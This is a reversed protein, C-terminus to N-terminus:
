HHLLKLAKQYEQDAIKQLKENGLFRQFIGPDQPNSRLQNMPISYQIQMSEFPESRCVIEGNKDVITAYGPCVKQNEEPWVIDSTIFWCESDYARTIFHSKRNLFNLMRANLEVRNFMPCFLVQAGKFAMIQAPERYCSDLCIMVGFKVGNKEFIPFDTGLSFYDYPPYTYAKRYQGLFHGKEIILVTNFIQDGRRENIGLLLTTNFAKFNELLKSFDTSELDLSYKEAKEREEFYGHLFSEPMCLVDSGKSEAFALQELTQDLNHPIDGPIHPGQYSSVMFFNKSKPM